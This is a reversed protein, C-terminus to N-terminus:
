EVDEVGCLINQENTSFYGLGKFPIPRLSRSDLYVEDGTKYYKCEPGANIIVGLIIIEELIKEIEGTEQSFSLGTNLILGSESQTKVYKNKLIKIVINSHNSKLRKENAM